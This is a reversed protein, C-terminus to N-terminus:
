PTQPAQSGPVHHHPTLRDGPKSREQDIEDNAHDLLAGLEPTEGRPDLRNAADLDAACVIWQAANCDEQAQARLEAPSSGAPWEPPNRTPASDSTEDRSIGDDQMREHGIRPWRRFFIAAVIVLLLIFTGKTADLAGLTKMMSTISRRVTRASEKTNASIEEVTEGAVLHRFLWDARDPYLERARQVLERVRVTEEGDRRPARPDALKEPDNVQPRDGLAHTTRRELEKERENADDVSKYRAVGELYPVAQEPDTPMAALNSLVDALVDQLVDDAQQKPVGRLSIVKRLSAIVEPDVLIALRADDDERRGM